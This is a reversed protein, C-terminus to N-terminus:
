AFLGAIRASLGNEREMVAGARLVRAALAKICLGAPCRPFGVVFPLRRDAARGVQSDNLVFGAYALSFNLFRDCTHVIRAGVRDAQALSEARNILVSVANHCKCAFIRKVITYASTVSMSDPDCVVVIRDSAHIMDAQANLVHSPCDLIRFNRYHGSSSKHRQVTRKSLDRTIQLRSALRDEVRSSTPGILLDGPGICSGSADVLAVEHGSLALYVSLNLAITTAGVGGKAGVIALTMTEVGRDARGGNLVSGRSDGGGPKDTAQKDAGHAHRRIEVM